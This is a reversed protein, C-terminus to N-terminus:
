NFFLNSCLSIFFCQKWVGASKGGSVDTSTQEKTPQSVPLGQNTAAGLGPNGTTAFTGSEDVHATSSANSRPGLDTILLDCPRM